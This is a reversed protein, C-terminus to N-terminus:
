FFDGYEDKSIADPFYEKVEDVSRYVFDMKTYTPSCVGKIGGEAKWVIFLSSSERHPEYIYQAM